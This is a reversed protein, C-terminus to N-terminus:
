SHWFGSNVNPLALSVSKIFYILALIYLYNCKYIWLLVFLPVLCLYNSFLHSCILCHNTSSITMQHWYDMLNGPYGAPFALNQLLWNSFFFIFAEDKNVLTYIILEKFTMTFTFTKHFVFILILVQVFVVSSFNLGSIFNGYRNKNAQKMWKLGLSM